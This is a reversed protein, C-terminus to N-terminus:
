AAVAWGHPMGRGQPQEEGSVDRVCQVDGVAEALTLNQQDAALRVPRVPERELTRAVGTM